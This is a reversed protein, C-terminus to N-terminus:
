RKRLLMERPNAGGPMYMTKYDYDEFGQDSKWKAFDKYELPPNRPQGGLSVLPVTPEIRKMYEEAEQKTEFIDARVAM